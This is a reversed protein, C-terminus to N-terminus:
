RFNEQESGGLRSTVIKPNEGVVLEANYSMPSKANPATDTEAIVAPMPISKSPHSRKLYLLASGLLNM